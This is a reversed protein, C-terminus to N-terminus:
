AVKEQQRACWSLVRERIGPCGDSSIAAYIAGRSCGLLRALAAVSMDTELLLRRLDKLDSVMM